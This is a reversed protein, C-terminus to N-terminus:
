LPRETLISVYAPSRTLRAFADEDVAKARDAKEDPLTFGLALGGEYRLGRPSFGHRGRTMYVDLRNERWQFSDDNTTMHEGAVLHLAIVFETRNLSDFIEQITDKTKITQLSEFLIARFLPQGQLSQLTLRRSEPDRSLRATAM